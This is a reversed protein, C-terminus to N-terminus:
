TIRELKGVFRKYWEEFEKTSIVHLEIPADTLMHAEAKFKYVDEKSANDAIILIDIDSSATPKGEVVSGFVYVEVKGVHEEAIEKIKEAVERYNELQSLRRKGFEIYIDFEKLM